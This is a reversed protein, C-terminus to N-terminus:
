AAAADTRRKRARRALLALFTIGTLVLINSGALLALGALSPKQVPGAWVDSIVLSNVYGCCLNITELLAIGPAHTAELIEGVPNHTFPSPIGWMAILVALPLEVATALLLARRLM